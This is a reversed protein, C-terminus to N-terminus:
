SALPTDAKRLQLGVVMANLDNVASIVRYRVTGVMIDVNRMLIPGFEIPAEGLYDEYEGANVDHTEVPSWIALTMDGAPNGDMDSIIGSLPYLIAIPLVAFEVGTVRQGTTLQVGSDLLEYVGRSYM